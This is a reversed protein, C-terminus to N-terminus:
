SAGQKRRKSTESARAGEPAVAPSASRPLYLHVTTGRDLESEIEMHGGLRSITAFVVSLGLGMGSSRPATRFFPTIAREAVDLSMGPGADRVSLRVYDGQTLAPRTAAFERTVRVNRTEITIPAGSGETAARANAVLECLCESLRAEDCDVPWLGAGAVVQLRVKEEDDQSLDPLSSLLDNLNLAEIRMREPAILRKLTDVLRAAHRRDMTKASSRSLASILREFDSAPTQGSKVPASLGFARLLEGCFAELGDGIQAMRRAVDRGHDRRKVSSVDVMLCYTEGAPGTSETMVTWRGNRLRQDIVRGSKAHWELRDRLWAEERVLVDEPLLRRAFERQFTEYPTGAAFVPALEPFTERALANTSVLRDRRDFMVLAAPLHEWPRALPAEVGDRSRAGADAPLIDARESVWRAGLSVVMQQIEFAHFPKSLFYLQDLPPAREALDRPHIQLESTVVVINLSEDRERLQEIIAAADVGGGPEVFAVAFPQLSAKAEEVRRLAEDPKRCLVLDVAPFGPPPVMVGAILRDLLDAGVGAEEGLSPTLMAEYDRRVKASPELVLVRYSSSEIM